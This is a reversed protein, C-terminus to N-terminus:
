ETFAALKELSSALGAAHDAPAIGAPVDEARVAVLTGGPLPMFTWTMKMSGSFAPDDADFTVIQEIRRNEVLKVFRVEVEDSDTSSKGPPHDPATYTLRM